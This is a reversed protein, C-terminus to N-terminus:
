QLIEWPARVTPPESKRAYKHWVLRTENLLGLTWLIDALNLFSSDIFHLERARLIEPLWDWFSPRRTIDVRTWLPVQRRDINYGRRHDEHVLFFDDKPRPTSPINPSFFSGWRADFPVGAQRYFERDWQSVDFPGGNFYGLKLAGPWQPIWDGRVVEIHNAGFVQIRSNDSYMLRVDDLYDRRTLLVIPRNDRESFYRVMGNTIIADGMELHPIILLKDPPQPVPVRQAPAPRGMKGPAPLVRQIVRPSIGPRSVIVSRAAKSPTNVLIPM